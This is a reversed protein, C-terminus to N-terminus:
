GLFHSYDLFIDPDFKQTFNTSQIIYSLHSISQYRESIKDFEPSIKFKDSLL